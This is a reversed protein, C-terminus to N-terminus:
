AEQTRTGEGGHFVEREDAGSPVDRRPMHFGNAVRAITQDCCHIGVVGDAHEVLVKAVRAEERLDLAEIPVQFFLSPLGRLIADVVDRDTGGVVEVVRVHPKRQPNVRVRDTLLWQHDAGPVQVRQEVQLLLEPM